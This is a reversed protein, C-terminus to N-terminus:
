YEDFIRQIEGPDSTKTLAIQLLISAKHPVLSDGEIFRDRTEVAVRNDTGGRATRVISIGKQALEELIPQQGRHPTGRTTFGNIVIGKVGLDAAARILEPDADYYSSIVEVKPLSTIQNM